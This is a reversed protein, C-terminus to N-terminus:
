YKGLYSLRFAMNGMFKQVKLNFLEFPEKFCEM